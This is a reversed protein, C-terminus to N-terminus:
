RLQSAAQFINYVQYIGHYIYTHTGTILEFSISNLSPEGVSHLSKVTITTNEVNYFSPM